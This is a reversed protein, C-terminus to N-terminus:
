EGNMRAAFGFCTGTTVSFLAATQFLSYTSANIVLGDTYL